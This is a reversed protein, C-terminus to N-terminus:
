RAAGTGSLLENLQREDPARNYFLSYFSRTEARIDEPFADPYLVRGLWKLGILRNVSPPSDLWPFPVEPAVFLHRGRVAKISKWVDDTAAIAAFAAEATIVIAPNWMLLQEPSVTVLSGQGIREGAVNRAGIREISEVNISGKLGTQMGRPGRAYYVLPRKAPPVRALRKDVDALVREAYRSLEGARESVGLATGASKYAAGVHDFAGDFLLYPVGTQKQIRDALSVYTPNITGYDLIVDPRAALVTEVSSTNGRGTLRGLAPLEAYRAPMYTRQEPSLPLNWNILKEPALTYIFVGAPAGAAFIREIKAPVEVRRGASDVVVRTEASFAQATFLLVGLAAVAYFGARLNRRSNNLM